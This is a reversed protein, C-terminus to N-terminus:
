YFKPLDSCIFTKQKRDRNGLYSEVNKNQSHYAKYNYRLNQVSDASPIRFGDFSRTGTYKGSNDIFIITANKRLDGIEYANALSQSPTCFGWGLATWGGKGGVRPGQFMSYANVGFDSNNFQGTQIEFIAKRSNDGLQRWINEYNPM